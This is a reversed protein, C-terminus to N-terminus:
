FKDIQTCHCHFCMGIGASERRLSAPAPRGDGAVKVVRSGFRALDEDITAAHAIVVVKFGRFGTNLLAYTLRQRDIYGCPSSTILHVHKKLFTKL